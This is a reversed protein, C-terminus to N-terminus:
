PVIRTAEAKGEFSGISIGELDFLTNKFVGSGTLGSKDIEMATETLSSGLLTHDTPDFRFYSSRIIFRRLGSREWVGHGTSVNPLAATQVVSRDWTATAMALIQCESLGPPCSVAGAPATVVIRWSGTIDQGNKYNEDAFAAPSMAFLGSLALLVSKATHM